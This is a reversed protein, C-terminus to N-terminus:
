EVYVFVNDYRLHWPGSTNSVYTMGVNVQRYQPTAQYLAFDKAWDAGSLPPLIGSVPKWETISIACWGM